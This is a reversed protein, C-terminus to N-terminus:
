HLGAPERARSRAAAARPTRVRKRGPPAPAQEVREVAQLKAAREQVLTHGPQTETWTCLARTRELMQEVAGHGARLAANLATYVSVPVDPRYSATVRFNRSSRFWWRVQHQVLPNRTSRAIAAWYEAQFASRREPAPDPGIAEVLRDLRDLEAPTIRREALTLIPLLLLGRMEVSALALADGEEAVELQMQLLRVDTAQQPDLVITTSGQRVRVLELEELRHIAQRVILPSVGFRVSLERQTPVATGPELEGRLIAGLLAEFVRDAVRPRLAPDPQFTGQARRSPTSPTPRLRKSSVPRVLESRYLM